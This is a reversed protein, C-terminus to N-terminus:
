LNYLRVENCRNPEMSFLLGCSPSHMSFQPLAMISATCKCSPKSARGCFKSFCSYSEDHRDTKRDAHFLEAGVLLIKMHKLIKRFDKWLIEVKILGQCWYSTCNIFVETRKHYYRVWNNKSHSLKLRFKHLFDFCM